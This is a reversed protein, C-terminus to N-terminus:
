QSRIDKDRITTIKYTYCINSYNFIHLNANLSKKIIGPRTDVDIDLQYNNYCNISEYLHQSVIEHIELAQLYIDFRYIGAIPVLM